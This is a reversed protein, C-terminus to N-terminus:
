FKSSLIYVLIMNNRFLGMEVNKERKSHFSRLTQDYSLCVFFLLMLRLIPATLSM